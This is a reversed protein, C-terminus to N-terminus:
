RQNIWDEPVAVLRGLGDYLARHLVVYTFYHPARSDDVKEPPHKLNYNIDVIVFAKSNGYKGGPAFRDFHEDVKSHNKIFEVYMNLTSNIYYDVSPPRDAVAEDRRIAHQSSVYQCLFSLQLGVFFSAGVECRSKTGSSMSFYDQQYLRVYDLQSFCYALAIGIDAQSRLRPMTLKLPHMQLLVTHVLPSLLWGHSCLGRETLEPPMERDHSCADSVARIEAKHLDFCRMEISRFVPEFDASTIAARLTTEYGDGHLDTVAIHEVLYEIMKLCAFCHGNTFAVVFRIIKSIFENSNRSGTAVQDDEAQGIRDSTGQVAQLRRCFFDMADHTMLDGETLLLKEIDLRNKLVISRSQKGPIGAFITVYELNDTHCDKGALYAVASVGQGREFADQVEDVILIHPQEKPRLSERNAFWSELAAPRQAILVRFGSDQLKEAIEELLVTKGFGRAGRLFVHKVAPDLASAIIEDVLQPRLIRLAGIGNEPISLGAPGAKMVKSFQEVSMM